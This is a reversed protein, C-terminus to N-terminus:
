AAHSSILDEDFRGRGLFDLRDAGLLVSLSDHRRDAPEAVIRAGLAALLESSFVVPIADSHSSISHNIRDFVLLQEDDYNPDPV